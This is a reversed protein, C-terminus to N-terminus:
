VMLIDHGSLTPHNQLTAILEYQNAVSGFPEAYWLQGTTTQYYFEYRGDVGYPGSSGSTFSVVGPNYVPGGFPILFANHDLVLQDANPKFDTITAGWNFSSVHFLNDGAGGTVTAGGSQIVFMDNGDTGYYAHAQDAHIVAGSGNGNGITSSTGANVTGMGTVTPGQMSWVQVAGTGTDRVVIGSRGTGDFSDVADEVVQTAGLLMQNGIGDHVYDVSSIDGSANMTWTVLNGGVKWLMDSIGDGNYDGAASILMADVSPSVNGVISISPIGNHMLWEVVNGSGHDYWCGLDENVSFSPTTDNNRLPSLFLYENGTKKVPRCGISALLTLM